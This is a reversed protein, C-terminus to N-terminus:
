FTLLQVQPKIVQLAVKQLSSVQMMRTNYAPPMDYVYILPRLRTNAAPPDAAAPTRVNPKLWPREEELGPAACVCPMM